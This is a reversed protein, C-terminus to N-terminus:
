KYGKEAYEIAMRLDCGIKTYMVIKDLLKQMNVPHKACFAELDGWHKRLEAEDLRGVRCAWRILDGTNSLIPM